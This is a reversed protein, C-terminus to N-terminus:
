FPSTENSAMDLEEVQDDNSSTSKKNFNIFEFSEAVVDTSYITSDEKSFTSTSIYGSIGIKNGKKGYECLAEAGKDFIIFPIFYTTKSIKNDVALTCKSYPIGKDKSYNIEPDRTLNGVLLVKNM